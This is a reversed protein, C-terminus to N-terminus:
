YYYSAVNQKTRIKTAYTLEKTTVALGRIFVVRVQL